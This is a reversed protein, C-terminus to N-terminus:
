ADVMERFAGTPFEEIGLRETAEAGSMAPTPTPFQTLCRKGAPDHAHARPEARREAACILLRV